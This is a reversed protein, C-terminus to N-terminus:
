GLAPVHSQSRVEHPLAKRAKCGRYGCIVSVTHVRLVLHWGGDQKRLSERDGPWVRVCVCVGGKATVMVKSQCVKTGLESALNTLAAPWALVGGAERGSKSENKGSLLVYSFDFVTPWM